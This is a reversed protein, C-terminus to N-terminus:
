LFNPVPIKSFIVPYHIGTIEGSLLQPLFLSLKHGAKIVSPIFHTTLSFSSSPSSCLSVSVCVCLSSSASFFSSSSSVCLSSLYLFWILCPGRNTHGDTYGMTWLPGKWRLSRYVVSCLASSAPSNSSTRAWVYDQWWRTGKKLISLIIVMEKKNRGEEM